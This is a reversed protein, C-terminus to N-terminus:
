LNQVSSRREALLEVISKRRENSISSRRAAHIKLVSSRGGSSPAAALLDTISSRREVAEYKKNDKSSTFFKFLSFMIVVIVGLAAGEGIYVIEEKELQEIINGEESSEISAYFTSLYEPAQVIFFVSPDITVDVPIEEHDFLFEHLYSFDQKVGLALDDIIVDISTGDCDSPKVETTVMCGDAAIAIHSTVRTKAIRLYRAITDEMADVWLPSFNFCNNLKMMIVVSEEDYEVGDDSQPLFTADAGVDSAYKSEGEQSLGRVNLLRRTLDTTAGLNYSVIVKASYHVYYQDELPIDDEYYKFSAWTARSRIDNTVDFLNTSSVLTTKNLNKYLSRDAEIMEVNSIIVQDSTIYAIGAIDQYNEFVQTHQPAATTADFAYDIDFSELTDGLTLILEGTVDVDALSQWCYDAATLSVTFNRTNTEFCDAPRCNDTAEFDYEEGTVECDDFQTQFYWYQWCVAEEDGCDNHLGDYGLASIESVQSGTIINDNNSPPRSDDVYFSTVEHYENVLTVVKLNAGFVTDSNDDVFERVEADYLAAIFTGYPYAELVDVVFTCSDHNGAADYVEATITVTSAPFAHNPNYPSYTISSDLNGDWTDEATAAWNINIHSNGQGIRETIDDPCTIKPDGKDVITVNWACETPNDEDDKFTYKFGYTGIHLKVYDDSITTINTTSDYNITASSDSAGSSPDYYLSGSGFVEANLVCQDAATFSYSYNHYTINGNTDISETSPCDNNVPPHIDRIRVHFTCTAPELEHFDWAKYTVRTVGVQLRRNPATNTGSGVTEEILTDNFFVEIKRVDKDDKFQPPEWDGCGCGSNEDRCEIDIDEPCTGDVLTPPEDDCTPWLCPNPNQVIIKWVCTNENGATDRLEWTTQYTRNAGLYDVAYTDGSAPPLIGEVGNSILNNLYPGYEVGNADYFYPPDDFIVPLSVNKNDPNWTVNLDIFDACVPPTNDYHVTINCTYSHGGNDTAQYDLTYNHDIGSGQSPDGPYNELPTVIDVDYANVPEWSKWTNTYVIREPEFSTEICDCNTYLTDDLNPNFSGPFRYKFNELSNDNFVTDLDSTQVNVLYGNKCVRIEGDPTTEQCNQCDVHPDSDDIVNIVLSCTAYNATDTDANDYIHYKFEHKGIAFCSTLIDGNGNSHIDSKNASTVDDEFYERDVYTFNADNNDAFTPFDSDSLDNRSFYGDGLVICGGHNTYVNVTKLNDAYSCTPPTPDNGCYKGTWGFADDSECDCDCRGESTCCGHNNCAADGSLTENDCHHDNEVSVQSTVTTTRQLSLVWNIPQQLKREITFGAVQLNLKAIVQTVGQYIYQSEDTPDVTLSFDCNLYNLYSYYRTNCGIRKSAQPTYPASQDSCKDSYDVQVSHYYYPLEFDIQVRPDNDVLKLKSSDLLIPNFDSHLNTYGTPCTEVFKILLEIDESSQTTSQSWVKNTFGGDVYTISPSPPWASGEVNGTDQFCSEILNPFTGFVPYVNEGDITQVVNPLALIIDSNRAVAYAQCEVAQVGEDPIDPQALMSVWLFIEDNANFNYDGSFVINPQTNLQINVKTVGVPVTWKHEGHKYGIEITTNVYTDQLTLDNTDEYLEAKIVIFYAFIVLLYM